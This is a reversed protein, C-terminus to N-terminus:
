SDDHLDALATAQSPAVISESVTVDVLTALEQIAEFIRDLQDYTLIYLENNEM